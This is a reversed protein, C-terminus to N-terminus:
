DQVSFFTKKEELSSINENRKGCAVKFENISLQKTTNRVSNYILFEDSELRFNLDHFYSM